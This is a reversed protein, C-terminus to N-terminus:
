AKRATNNVLIVAACKRLNFQRRWAVIVVVIAAFQDVGLIVSKLFFICDLLPRKKEDQRRRSWRKHFPTSWTIVPRCRVTFQLEINRVLIIIVVVVIIIIMMMMMMIMVMLRWLVCLAGHSYWVSHIVFYMVSCDTVHERRMYNNYLIWCLYSCAHMECFIAGHITLLAFTKLVFVVKLAFVQCVDISIHDLRLM